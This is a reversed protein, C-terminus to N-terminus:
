GDGFLISDGNTDFGEILGALVVHNQSSHLLGFHCSTSRVHFDPVEKKEM